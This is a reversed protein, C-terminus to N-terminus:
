RIEAKLVTNESQQGSSVLAFFFDFFEYLSEVVVTAEDCVTV